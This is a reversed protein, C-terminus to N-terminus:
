SSLKCGVRRGRRADELTVINSSSNFGWSNATEYRTTPSGNKEVRLEEKQAAASNPSSIRLFPAFNELMSINSQLDM